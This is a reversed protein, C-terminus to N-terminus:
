APRGCRSALYAAVGRVAACAAIVLGPAASSLAEVLAWGFLLWSLCALAGAAVHRRDAIAASFRVGVVEALANAALILAMEM